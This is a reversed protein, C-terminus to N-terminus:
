FKRERAAIRAGFVVGAMVTTGSEHGLDLSTVQTDTASFTAIRGGDQAITGGQEARLATWATALGDLLGARNWRLRAKFALLPNITTDVLEATIDVAALADYHASEIDSIAEQNWTITRRDKNNAGNDAHALSSDADVLACEIEIEGERNFQSGPAITLTPATAGPDGIPITGPWPAVAGETVLFVPSMFITRTTGDNSALVDVRGIGGAGGNWAAAWTFLQWTPTVAFTTSVVLTGTDSDRMEIKATHSDNARAFWHVHRTGAVGLNLEPHNISQVNTGTISVAQKLGTPDTAAGYVLTSGLPVWSGPFTTNPITNVIAPMAALGTRGSATHRVQAVRNPGFTEVLPGSAATGTICAISGTRPSALAGWATPISTYRIIAQMQATTLARRWVYARVIQGPLPVDTFDPGAEATSRFLRFRGPTDAYFEGMGATSTNVVGSADVCRVFGAANDYILGAGHLSGDASAATGTATKTATDGYLEVSARGAADLGFAWGRAGVKRGMLGCAIGSWPSESVKYFCFASFPTGSGFNGFANGTPSAHIDRSTRDPNEYCTTTSRKAEPAVCLADTLTGTDAELLPEVGLRGILGGDYIAYDPPPPQNAIGAFALKWEFVTRPLPQQQRTSYTYSTEADPDLHKHTRLDFADFCSNLPTGTVRAADLTVRLQTATEPIPDLVVQRRQWVNSPSLAQAGTTASGVVAGGGDLAELTVTGTDNVDDNMRGCVLVAVATEHGTPLTVAQRLQASAGDQPRAYNTSSYPTTGLVQWAGVTTTWGVGVGAEFSPNVLLQDSIQGVRLCLETCGVNATTDFEGVPTLLIRARISATNDHLDDIALGNFGWTTGPDVPGYTQTQLVSGGSDLSILQVTITDGVDGTNVTAFDLIARYNAPLYGSIPVDQRIETIGAAAGGTVYSGGAGLGTGNTVISPTGSVTTWGNLGSTFRPNILLERWHHAQVSLLPTQWNVLSPSTGDPLTTARRARAGVDLLGHGAAGLHVEISSSSTHGLALTTEGGPAVAAGKVAVADYVTGGELTEASADPRTITGKLRDRAMYSVGVGGETVNAPVRSGSLKLDSPPYSLMTRSRATFSDEPSDDSPTWTSGAAAQTHTVLSSGHVHVLGGIAGGAYGGPLFYGRAGEAHTAPVTDLVGRWVNGLVWDGGGADTVTEFALIEGGIQLLNRGETAIQTPTAAALAIGYLGRIRLGTVTDYASTTRAYTLDVTFGAPFTRASLDLTEAAGNTATQVMYLNDNAEPAALFFGRQADVNTLSGNEWGKLQVWRPAETITRYIIPSPDPPHETVFDPPIFVPATFDFRDQLAMVTVRGDTLTGKRVKAVRFVMDLGLDPWQFRFVDGRQLRHARRNLQVQIQVLPRSLMNLERAALESALKANSVGPFRIERVRRRGGQATVLAGNQAAAVRDTYDRARDRYVVRVENYVEDWTSATFTPETGKVVDAPGYVTLAAPNYDERILKITYKGSIQDRFVSCDTQEEITKIHDDIDGGDFVISIGHGEAEFVTAAAAFAILDIESEPIGGRYNLLGVIVSAPNSDGTGIASFGAVFNPISVPTYIEASWPELYPSEGIMMGTGEAGILCVSVQGRYAPLLNPDPASGSPNTGYIGVWTPHPVQQWSGGQIILRGNIGGGHFLGGYFTNATIVFVEPDGTSLPSLSKDGVWFKRVTAAAGRLPEANSMGFIIQMAARYHYNVLETGLFNEKREIRGAWVVNGSVRNTGYMLPIRTGEQVRTVRVSDPTHDRRLERRPDPTFYKHKVWKGVFVAANALLLGWAM